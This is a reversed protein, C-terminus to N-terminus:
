RDIGHGTPYLGPIAAPLHGPFGSCGFLADALADLSPPLISYTCVHTTAQPYAALDFPTRLAVTVSPRDAVAEVLTAQEPQLSASITGVVVLDCDAALRRAAAIESPRPAQSMILEDVCAHHRRLASALGPAVSASTDAPTLDAPQPMIALIRQREDLRLPLLGIDDRVLTMSRAALEQALARHRASGVVELPPQEFGALWSRLDALRRQTGAIAAPELLRRAAGHVIAAEIREIAERNPTCLLLDIGARLAAIVDVVQPAGQPLARMDLADSLILGEFGMEDRLLGSLVAHSLTAPLDDGGDLAPVAVHGAMVLRAGAEIGARFPALEVASLRERDHPVSGLAHHTDVAMDGIGPFHKLTAAVGASQIGRVTAAVLPAVAAPDDGFSRIGLGPNGPNTALDCVPAYDVTVGLARLESGIAAGVREALEADGVAGLAMNGAFPTTGDGLGLLQGGEQDAAVLFPGLSAIADTLSRVQAPSDVNVYRFLGVGAAGRAALRARMPEPLEQGEFALM